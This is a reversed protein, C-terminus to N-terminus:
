PNLPIGLGLALNVVGGTILAAFTLAMGVIRMNMIEPRRSFGFAHILRGAILALGMGHLLWVNVQQFEALAILLLTIPAYEACNSQARMLRLLERDGGDGLGIRKSRRARIVRISMLTMLLAIVGAYLSTILM